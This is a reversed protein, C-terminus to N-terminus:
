LCHVPQKACCAPARRKVMNVAAVLAKLGSAQVFGCGDRDYTRLSKMMGALGVTSAAENGGSGSGQAAGVSGAGGGAKAAVAAKTAAAAIAADAAAQAQRAAEAQRLKAESWQKRWDVTYAVGYEPVAPGDAQFPRASLPLGAAASGGSGSGAQQQSAARVLVRGDGQQGKRARSTKSAPGPCIDAVHLPDRPQEAFLTHPRWGPRTGEIDDARM